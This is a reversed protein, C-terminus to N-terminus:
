ASAPQLTIEVRDPHDKTIVPEPALQIWRPRGHVLIRTEVAYDHHPDIASPNYLLRVRLPPQGPSSDIHEAVVLPPADSRTIDLLRLELVADAGLSADTSFNVICVLMPVPEPSGPATTCGTTAFLLLLPAALLTLISKVSAAAAVTASFYASKL